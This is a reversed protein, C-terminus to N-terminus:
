TCYAIIRKDRPLDKYEGVEIKAIPLSVAGKIHGEKYVEESRVDIVVAKKAAVLQKLEEANVRPVKSEEDQATPQPSPTASRPQPTVSSASAQAVAPTQAAPTQSAAATNSASRNTSCALGLSLAGVMLVNSGELVFRKM